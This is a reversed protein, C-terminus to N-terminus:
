RELRNYLEIMQRAMRQAHYRQHVAQRARRGCLDALGPERLMRGLAEALAAASGPEHLLGGGTDEVMECFAGHAPLVVPVGNAWAELVPLGKSEGLLSPLCMVDLSQLFAIKAARDLEGVYEFRDGLGQQALKRQVEALYPRDQEDLYGAALVRFPPMAPDRSLIAMADALLHLGKDACVRSLFGVTAAQPKALDQPPCQSAALPGNEGEAKRGHGDLNLGPPIVHIRERPVALYDAMFDAYYRNMAVLAALDAARERLVARARDYWPQPLKELFGDEGSLTSVVPVGLRDRLPRALGALMVNSLHIVSPRVDAELWAVLRDIEQRLPGAEAQLLSVTLSGLREPRTRMGRRAAWRVLAPRDLLRRVPPPLWRFVASSEQLYVNIGGLMLRDVSVNEEDTRLPTYVPALVVEVGEARLAAALTNGHICSGCYM